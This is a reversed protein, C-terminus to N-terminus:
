REGYEKIYITILKMNFGDTDFGNPTIYNLKNIKVGDPLIVKNKLWKIDNFWEKYTIYKM